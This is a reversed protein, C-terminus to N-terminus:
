IESGSRTGTSVFTASNGNKVLYYGGAGGSGGASGFWNVVGTGTGGTNGAAGYSGGTGGTGGTSQVSQGAKDETGQQGGLGGAGAGANTGGSGAAPARFQTYLNVQAGAGGGSTNQYSQAGGGGGGGSYYVGGVWNASGGGGGGGGGGRLAGSGNTITANLTLNLAPGGGGGAAGASFSGGGGGAGGMGIISGNNVLAFTSGTPWTSGTNFASTGTSTAYVVIGSNITCTCQIPATFSGLAAYIASLLNFNTQNSTITATIVVAKSSSKFNDVSITGSTPISSTGQSVVYTVGGSSLTQPAPATGVFSGGRYYESLGIPNSGGFETQIGSFSIDTTGIPM